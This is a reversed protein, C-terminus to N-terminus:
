AKGKALGGQPQLSLGTFLVVAIPWDSRLMRPDRFLLCELKRVKDAGLGWIDPVVNVLQRDRGEWRSISPFLM